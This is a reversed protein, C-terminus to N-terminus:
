ALTEIAGVKVLTGVDGMRRWASGLAEGTVPHILDPAVEALPGLVFPRHLVDSHPLRRAADVRRGYLALDLDLTVDIAGPEARSRGAEAEIGELAHKVADAPAGTAFGVVLNFYDPAPVGFAASRYVCSCRLPGFARVLAAIAARLNIGPSANSGAAVYVQVPL